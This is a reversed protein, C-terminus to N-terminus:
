QNDTKLIVRRGVGVMMNMSERMEMGEVEVVEEEIDQEEVEEERKRRKLVTIKWTWKSTAHPNLTHVCKM